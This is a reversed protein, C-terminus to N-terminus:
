EAVKRLYTKAKLYDEEKDIDFLIANDSMEIKRVKNPHMKILVKGRVDGSTRM